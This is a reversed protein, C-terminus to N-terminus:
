SASLKGRNNKPHNYTPRGRIRVSSRSHHFDRWRDSGNFDM